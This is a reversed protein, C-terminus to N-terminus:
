PMDEDTGTLDKLPRVDYLLEFAVGRVSETMEAREKLSFPSCGCEPAFGVEAFGDSMDLLVRDSAM